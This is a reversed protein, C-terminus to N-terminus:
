VGGRRASNVTSMAVSPQSVNSSLRQRSGAHPEPTKKTIRKTRMASSHRLRLGSAFVRRRYSSSIRNRDSFKAAHVDVRCGTEDSAETQIEREQILHLWLFDHLQALRQLLIRLLFQKRAYKPLLSLRTGTGWLHVGDALQVEELQGGLWLKVKHDSIWRPDAALAGKLRPM